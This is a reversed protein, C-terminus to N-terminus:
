AVGKFYTRRCSGSTMRMPSIRSRSVMSMARVEASVPCRTKPVSCVRAGGLGDAADDVDERGVLLLLDPDLKAAFRMPTM